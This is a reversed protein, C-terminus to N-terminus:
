RLRSAVDTFFLNAANWVVLVRDAGYRDSLGTLDTFDSRSSSLNLLILDFHRALFPALADAFSDRAILLLPRSGAGKKRVTVVDHTGGLFVEYGIPMGDAPAFCFGTQVAGDAIVEYDSDDAGRWVEIEEPAVWPFGGSCLFTGRFRDTVRERCFAKPPLIADEMGFACLVERYAYYAGLATWHHDTRYM